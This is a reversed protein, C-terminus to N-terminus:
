SGESICGQLLCADFALQEPSLQEVSAILCEKSLVITMNTGRLFQHPAHM